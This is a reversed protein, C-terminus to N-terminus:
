PAEEDLWPSSESGHTEVPESPGLTPVERPPADDPAREHLRANWLYIAIAIGAIVGAGLAILISRLSTRPRMAQVAELDDRDSM